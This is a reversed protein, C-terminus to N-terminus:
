PSGERGAKRRHRLMIVLALSGVFLPWGVAAGWGLFRRAVTSLVVPQSLPDKGRLQILTKERALWGLANLLLDSNAGLNINANSVFESNGVVVMRGVKDGTSDLRLELAMALPLPGRVDHGPDFKPKGSFMTAPDTEAWTLDSSQLLVAGGVTSDPEGVEALPQALPFVTVVGKLPRSIIHDGYGDGVVITRASVGYEEGARDASVMVAGTLGVRWRAMWEVWHEPTPPDFMALVAGGKRLYATVADLERRGPQTRPGAIVLVDCGGPVVPNQGLYLPRVDYGQMALVQGYTSYGPREDSALLHEGHGQLECVRTRKGSVLRFVASILAGEEPQLVSVFREGATIVVTRSVRVDYHRVLDLDTEPDIVKFRFAHTRRACAKLLAETIDRAPDMRQYFAYVMVHDPASSGAPGEVRGSSDPAAAVAALDAPLEDLIQLTQPALSYRRNGTTDLTWPFQGALLFLAVALLVTTLAPAWVAPRRRVPMRRSKMVGTAAVLPVVIMLLFYLIDRYDIVGRSLLEFHTLLSLERVLAGPVAPLFRELSGVLFLFLSIIFATFYAVMQQSFLTSALVGWAALTALFLLEGLIATAAPGWEPSGLFWVAGFYALSCGIMVAGSFLAALWKGWVWTRDTVPWSAILNYRGSGFEPAFLRMTVAPVLFLMFFVTNSVLPRFLGEALNLYNGSRPSQLATLSMESYGLLFITFFLGVAALFATLVVAGMPSHFFEGTERRAIALTRTM